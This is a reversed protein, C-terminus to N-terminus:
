AAPIPDDALFERCANAILPTVDIANTPHRITNCSVVLGAGAHELDEVAGDAFVPHIAICVPAARGGGNVQGVAEAMTRGTSIIDDLLVVQRGAHAGLDPMSVSVDRDGRRVKELVISPAGAVAAVADVWQRSESDPGILLADSVHTRVWEGIVPAAHVCFSPVGYIEDLCGYRHLHPDVTLLADFYSSLLSAFYRSTVGEGDRFRSDQRMYPLYPAVLVVREAGLDRLTAALLLAQLTHQDPRGLAACVVVHRGACDSDVRIYTEGDPFNRLELRGAEADLASCVADVLQPSAGLNFTIATM